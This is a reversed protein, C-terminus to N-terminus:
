GELSAEVIEDVQLHSITPFMSSNVPSRWDALAGLFWAIIVQVVIIVLIFIKQAENSSATLVFSKLTRTLYIGMM